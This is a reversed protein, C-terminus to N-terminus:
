FGLAIPYQGRVLWEGLQRRDNTPAVQQDNLLSRLKDAGKVVYLVSIVGSGSSPVRPDQIAIKGKWEPDWLQDMTNLQSQPIVSRNVFAVYNINTVFAYDYTKDKDAWGAEFGHVWKSDDLVDPLFLQPRLPDLAGAPRYGNFTTVPTHAVVDWLYQGAQRETLVRPVIDSAGNGVMLDVHIGFAKGFEEFALRYVDGPAAVIEIKGEQKAAM